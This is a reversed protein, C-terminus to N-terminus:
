RQNCAHQEADQEVHGGRCRARRRKGIDFGDAQQPQLRQRHRDDRQDDRQKDGADSRGGVGRASSRKRRPRDAVSAGGEGVKESKMRPRIGALGIAAAASVVTRGSITNVVMKAKAIVRM